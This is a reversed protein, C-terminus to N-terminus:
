PTGGPLRYSSRNYDFKIDPEAKLSVYFTFAFNGNPAQTFGFVARWDHLDRQLSVTQSGFERREIDYNTSWTAAWKETLNFSTRSQVNTQPPYRIFSGGATTLTNTAPPPASQANRVCFDYQIPNIDKLPACQLAPDFQIVNGGVPPRQQTKSFSIQAEFGRVPTLPIASRMSESAVSSTGGLRSGPQDPNAKALASDSANPATQTVGFLRGLLHVIPSKADLNFSARINVLYPSFKASDSLVSGQFLSYDAGFDFGPLLESQLTYGFNDNAFGTRHTKRAREFDWTLPTLNLSLVKIKRAPVPNAANTDVPQRLKAEIYQTIGLTVRNQAFGGLYGASSQGLAALYAPNLTAEPSYSFTLTPTVAHRFMEVPGLGRFFGFFTPSIGLGYSLRKSQHEWRSGTRESRVFYAGPDVNALSVSPTVHYQGPILQPISFQLDFDVTTLYTRAYVRTSRKATDVPDVITRLEPFDNERDQGRVALTIPSDFFKFPTNFTFSSTRTSRDVKVSDLSGDSKTIFRSSFDGQSDLHLSQSSSVNFSPTWVLWPALTLSKSTLNLSPFDRDLQLRGPYQRQTGGIAMQVPGMDRQYNLTSAITALVALPNVLTQRQVTTNSSYNFNVTLHSRISFDQQHQWTVLTNTSGTSLSMRSLQLGGAVFWDLWRYRLAGNLRVWGPDVDTANAGSRWDLSAQADYYDSLAFFYGVNEVNRRYNPSNRVLETLGFRPTLMGTRRGERGDQFIFPFWMVPVDMIHLVVSRAVMISGTVRKIEHASFHYHPISDQCSTITGDKGYLAAGKKSSTDGAFGAGHAFILWDQGGAKDEAHVDSAIGEKTTLNYQMRHHANVDGGGRTPDRMTISDGAASVTNNSDSYVITDSVLVTPERQVAAREGNKGTLVITRDKTGFRVEAAQYRVTQYGKRQMLALGLSDALDWRVLPLAKLSDRRAQASDEATRPIPRTPPQGPKPPVQGGGTVQAGVRNHGVAVVVTLV